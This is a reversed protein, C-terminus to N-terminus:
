RLRITDLNMPARTEVHLMRNITRALNDTKNEDGHVTIVRAPKQRINKAFALLQAYDSHGSFGEVTHVSLNIKLSEQKKSVADLIPVERAGDQIKRGLSLASQYGVFVLANREDQAMLKLFSVSPGGSLMGSPALIVCPEDREVMDKRDKSNARKFMPSDFPSNNQLIRRQVNHRLYEPYITHIASAELGMGDIYCLVNDNRLQQELALMIEQSRGVAFVPILTKGRRAVTARITQALRAECEELRPMIDERSGYTSEMILTEVRPFRTDASDFLNTRGYKLDGTVVINQLGEGIHLHVMASGLIHGANHFTFRVDPTVDTVEGYERTIVHNLEKKVEREGYPAGSGESNMVNICDQQLLVMLDRTPPTCYVPGDYGYAYLYPIFGSHDLHAHTLIVADIQELALNMATLYPYTKQPNSTDANIGCDIIVNSKPTQLLMCSRGVEKFGGLATIKIWECGQSPALIKKGLATLFKKREEANVLLASRVAKSVESSSTPSRLVRPSWGTNMIIAKLVVGKKGIVLGPKLAEIVVEHFVPDFKIDQVGAEPPIASKIFALSETPPHLGTEDTRLLVKKRVKGAIKTILNEDEYFSKLNKLYLVIQPGEVEIRALECQPPLIEEIQKQLEKIINKADKNNHENNAVM